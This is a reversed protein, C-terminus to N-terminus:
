IDTAPLADCQVRAFESEAHVCYVKSSKLDGCATNAWATFIELGDVFKESGLVNYIDVGPVPQHIM